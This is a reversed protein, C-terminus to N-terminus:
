LEVSEGAKPAIADIGLNDRIYQVFALSAKPEGHTAFVKKLNESHARAFDFLAERDPHASYGQIVERYCRVPITEGM